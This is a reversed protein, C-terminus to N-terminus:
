QVASASPDRFAPLSREYSAPGEVSFLIGEVALSSLAAEPVLTEGNDWSKFSYRGALYGIAQRETEKDPFKIVVMTSHINHLM